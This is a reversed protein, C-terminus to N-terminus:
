GRKAGGFLPHEFSLYLFVGRQGASPGLGVPVAVGPVIQLGSKFNLAWRFGPSLLM